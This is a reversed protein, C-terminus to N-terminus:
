AGVTMEIEDALQTLMQPLMKLLEPKNGNKEPNLLRLQMQMTQVSEMLDAETILIKDGRKTRKVASLKSRKVIEEIVAPIYGAMMSAVSTLDADKDIFTRGYHQILRKAAGADPKKVEIVADLRGPRLIAPNIKEVANTTLVVMVESSKTDIGDVINLINDMEPNREGTVVRDIDECFVIAPAYQLSFEVAEAFEEARKCYIFTVNHEVAMAAAVKAALTKGVGFDGALLIGRKVPIGAAKCDAMRCIPTFLNTEIIAAVDDPYILQSMSMGSTDVFKVDPLPMPEGDDNRFRLSVAKGRYISNEALETRVDAYIDRVTKEHKRRVESTLSFIFRNGKKAIGTDIHGEEKFLSIRGWPFSEVKKTDVEVDMMTPRQAGFFSWVTEMTVWGFRKKLVNFLARAGDWPFCDFQAAINTKENEYVLRRKLLDIAADIGLDEPLILKDGHHVIEAVHVKEAAQDLTKGAMQM